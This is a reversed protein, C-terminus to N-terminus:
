DQVVLVILIKFHYHIDILLEFQSVVCDCHKVRHFQRDSLGFYNITGYLFQYSKTKKSNIPSLFAVFFLKVSNQGVCACRKFGDWLYLTIQWSKCSKYTRLISDTNLLLRACIETKSRWTLLHISLTLRRIIIM